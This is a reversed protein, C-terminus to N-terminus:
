CSWSKQIILVIYCASVTAFSDHLYRKKLDEVNYRITSPHLYGVTAGTKIFVDDREKNTDERRRMQLKEEITNGNLWTTLTVRAGEDCSQQIKELAEAIEQNQEAVSHIMHLSDLIETLIDGDHIWNESIAQNTALELLKATARERGDQSSSKDSALLRMEQIIGFRLAKQHNERTTKQQGELATDYALALLECKKDEKLASLRAATLIQLIDYWEQELIGARAITARGKRYADEISTPDIDGGALKRLFHFVHHMGGYLGSATYRAAKTLRSPEDEIELREVAQRILDLHFSVPYYMSSLEMEKKKQAIVRCFEEKEKEFFRGRGIIRLLFFVQHICLFNAEYELFNHKTLRPRSSLSLLLDLGLDMLWVTDYVASDVWTLASFLAKAVDKNLFEGPNILSSFDYVLRRLVDADQEFVPAIKALEAYELVFEPELRDERGEGYKRLWGLLVVRENEDTTANYAAVLSKTSVIDHERALARLLKPKNRRQVNFDPLYPRGGSGSAPPAKKSPEEDSCQSQM